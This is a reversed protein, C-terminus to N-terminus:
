SKVVLQEQVLFHGLPRSRDVVSYNSCRCGKDADKESTFQDLDVFGHLQLSDRQFKLTSQILQIEDLLLCGLSHLLFLLGNISILYFIIKNINYLIVISVM